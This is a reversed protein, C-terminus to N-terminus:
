PRQFKLLSGMVARFVKEEDKYVADDGYYQQQVIGKRDIFLAIPVFPRVGEPVAAIKITADRDLYGMPYTPRYRAIFPAVEYPANDNVAATVVQLGQPGFDKQMRNLIDITRICDDCTTSILVLLVVKGRYQKLNIKKKDPTQIPVDALPRPTGVSAAFAATM